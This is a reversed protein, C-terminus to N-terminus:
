KGGIVTLIAQGFEVPLFEARFIEARHKSLDVRFTLKQRGIPILFQGPKQASPNESVLKIPQDNIWATVGSANGVSIRTQGRGTVEVEGQLYIVSPNEKINKLVPELPLTGDFRAYASNWSGAPANLLTQIVQNDPAPSSLEEPPVTLVKWRQVTTTTKRAYPGPKGLESLFRILDVFEQRTMLNPLGKPMLSGGLKKEEIEATTLAFEKGDADKLKVGQDDQDVIIGQVIRGDTTLVTMMQYLEKVALEPVMVSNLLYDIPSVTGVDSLEPGVQGGAGALSHCKFCSNEERRFIEEGRKADGKSAVEDMLVKLEADTPAKIESAIGAANSLAAVLSADSRGIAYLQRLALKATDQPVKASELAKSLSEPGGSKNLFGTLIQSIDSGTPTSGKTWLDVTLDAAKDPAVASLASLALVRTKTPQISNALATLTKLNAEGGLLGLAKMSEARLDDPSKPAKAIAELKTSAQDLKWAIINRIAAKTLAIDGPQGPEPLVQLLAERNKDPIIKRNAAADALTDLAKIRIDRPFAKPDTAKELLVSFDSATGQRGVIGIVTGLREPPVKGSKLLRM